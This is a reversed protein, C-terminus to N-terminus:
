RGHRPGSEAAAGEAALEGPLATLPNTSSAVVERAMDAVKRGRSRSASRLLEFAERPTLRHREALVGIAQETVVRTHLAHELQAVTVRLRAEEGDADSARPPAAPSANRREEAALLDALVIANLLDPLEEGDHVRWGTPTRRIVAAPAQEAEATDATSNSTM